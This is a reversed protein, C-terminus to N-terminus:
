APGSSTYQRNKWAWETLAQGKLGAPPGASTSATGGGSGRDYGPQIIQQGLEAAVQPQSANAVRTAESQTRTIHQKLAYTEM